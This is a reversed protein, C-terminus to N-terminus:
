PKRYGVSQAFYITQSPKLNLRKALQVAPESVVQAAAIGPMSGAVVASLMGLNAERRTIM